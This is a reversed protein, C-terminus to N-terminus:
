NIIQTEANDLIVWENFTLEIPQKQFNTQFSPTSRLSDPKPAIEDKSGGQLPVKNACAALFLVIFFLYICYLSSKLFM